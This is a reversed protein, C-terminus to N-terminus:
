IQMLSRDCLYDYRVLVKKLIGAKDKHGKAKALADFVVQAEDRDKARIIRGFLEDEERDLRAIQADLGKLIDRHEAIRQATAQNM